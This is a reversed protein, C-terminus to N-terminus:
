GERSGEERCLRAPHHQEALDAPVDGGAEVVADMSALAALHPPSAPGQCCSAGLLWGPMAM